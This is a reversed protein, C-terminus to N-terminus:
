SVSPLFTTDEHCSHTCDDLRGRHELMWVGDRRVFRDQWCLRCWSEPIREGLAGDPPATTHHHRAARVGDPSVM